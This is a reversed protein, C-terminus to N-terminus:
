SPGCIRGKKTWNVEGENEPIGFMRQTKEWAYSIGGGTIEGGEGEGGLTFRGSDRPLGRRAQRKSDKVRGGMEGDLGGEERGLCNLVLNRQVTNHSRLSEPYQGYVQSIDTL